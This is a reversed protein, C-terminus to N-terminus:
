AAIKALAFRGTRVARFDGPYVRLTQRVKDRWFKTLAPTCGEVEAYIQSLDAEGGLRSLATLCITRWTAGRTATLAKRYAAPLGAVDTAERYLAMGVLLRRTDKSFVAFVLPERLRPFVNRPVMEAAISWREGLAAVRQATGMAFAPLLFGARGGEPLLQHCRELFGDILEVTFPPNGVIATPTFDLQLARFDGTIVTRGTEERAVEAVLPDIEIGTAPVDVPVAKLFSGFGCSPELVHDRSDLRPFHRELLAEAVWLPTFWQGLDSKLAPAARAGGAAGFDLIAQGQDDNRMRAAEKGYGLGL